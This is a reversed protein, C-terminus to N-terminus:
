ISPIFQIHTEVFLKDGLARRAEFGLDARRIKGFPFWFTFFLRLRLMLLYCTCFFENRIRAM